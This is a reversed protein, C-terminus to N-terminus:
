GARRVACGRFQIHCRASLLRQGHDASFAGNEASRRCSWYVGPFHGREMARAPCSYWVECYKNRKMRQIEKVRRRVLVFHNQSDNGSLSADPEARSLVGAMANESCRAKITRYANNM